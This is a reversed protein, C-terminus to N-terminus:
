LKMKKNSNTQVGQLQRLLNLSGELNYSMMKDLTSTNKASGNLMNDMEREIISLRKLEISAIKDSWLNLTDKPMLNPLIEPEESKMNSSVPSAQTTEKDMIKEDYSENLKKMSKEEKKANTQNNVVSNAKETVITKYSSEINCFEDTESKKELIAEEFHPVVNKNKKPSEQKQVQEKVPQSTQKGGKIVPGCTVCVLEKQRSEMYPMFCKKCSTERMCWGQLLLEGIKKSGDDYDKKPVQTIMEPEEDITDYNEEEKEIQVDMTKDCKCCIASKETTNYLITGKCDPCNLNSMVWGEDLLKNIKAFYSM